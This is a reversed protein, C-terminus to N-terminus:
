LSVLYCFQASSLSVQFSCTRTESMKIGSSGSTIRSSRSTIGSPRSRSQGGAVISSWNTIGNPGGMIGSRGSMIEDQESGTTRVLAPFEETRMQFEAKKPSNNLKAEM